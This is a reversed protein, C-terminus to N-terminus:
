SVKSVIFARDGSGRGGDGSGLEAVGADTSRTLREILLHVREGCCTDCPM